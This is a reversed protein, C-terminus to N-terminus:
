FILTFEVSSNVSKEGTSAPTWTKMTNLAEKILTACECYERSIQTITIVSLNGKTNVTGKIKYKGVIPKTISKEKLYTLVFEKIALEGGPYFANSIEKKAVSASAVTKTSKEAAAKEESSKKADEKRVERANLVDDNNVATGQAVNNSNPQTNTDINYFKNVESKENESNSKEKDKVGTKDALVVTQQEALITNADKEKLTEDSATMELPTAETKTIALPMTKGTVVQSSLGTEAVKNRSVVQDSLPEKVVSEKKQSEVDTATEDQKQSEINEPPKSDESVENLALDNATNHKSQNFFFVSIMIILIISAAASFWIIKNKTTSGTSTVKESIATNVEETLMKAKETSVNAAFGELAEKEFDDMDDFANGTDSQKDLMQFLEEPSLPKHKDPKSM